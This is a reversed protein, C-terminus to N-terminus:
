HMSSFIGSGLTIMEEESLLGEPPSYTWGDPPGPSKWGDPVGPLPAVVDVGHIDDIVEEVEEGFDVDKDHLEAEFREDSIDDEDVSM